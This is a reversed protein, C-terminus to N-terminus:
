LMDWIEKKIRKVNKIDMVELYSNFHGLRGWLRYNMKSKKIYKEEKNHGYIYSDLCNDLYEYTCPRNSIKFENIYEFGLKSNLVDLEFPFFSQLAFLEEITFKELNKEFIERCKQKGMRCTGCNFSCGNNLLLKIDIGNKKIMKITEIDRLYRRGIVIQNYMNRKTDICIKNDNNFSSVLYISPYYERIIDVYEDLTCISDIPMNKIYKLADIMKQRSIGYQNFVVELKIDNEKFLILINRFKEIAGKQSYEEIVAERTHFEEGLPLSFYVSSIYKRYRRIIKEYDDLEINLSIGFSFNKEYIESKKEKM